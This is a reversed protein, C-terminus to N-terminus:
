SYLGIRIESHRSKRRCPTKHLTQKQNPSSTSPRYSINAWPHERQLYLDLTNLYPCVKWEEVEFGLSEAKERWVREKGEAIEADKELEAELEQSSIRFDTLEAELAEYQRKYYAITDAPSTNENPPSSPPESM